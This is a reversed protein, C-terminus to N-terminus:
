HEDLISSSPTQFDEYFLREDGFPDADCSGIFSWFDGQFRQSLDDKLPHFLNTVM